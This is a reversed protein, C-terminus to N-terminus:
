NKSIDILKAKEIEKIRNKFANEIEKLESDTILRKSIKAKLLEEKWYNFYILGMKLLKLTTM